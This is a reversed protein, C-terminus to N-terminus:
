LCGDIKPEAVWDSSEWVLKQQEEKLDKIRRCLQPCEISLMFKLSWPMNDVSGYRECIFYNRLAKVYDDKMMKRGAPVVTIGLSNCQASLYDIRRGCEISM